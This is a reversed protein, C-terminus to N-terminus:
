GKIWEEIVTTLEAENPRTGVLSCIHSILTRGDLVEELGLRIRELWDQQRVTFPAAEVPTGGLLTSEVATELDDLGIGALASVKCVPVNLAFGLGEVAPHVGLDAKNLVLMSPHLALAHAAALEDEDPQRTGDLVTLVLDASSAAWRARRQGEAEIEAHSAAESAYAHRPEPSIRRLGASDCLVLALGRLVAPRELLDRTTGPEPSVLSAETRLLRNTLTSKGANVPGAIVVRHTRLLNLAAPTQALADQVAALLKPRWDDSRERCGLAVAHGLREWKEQFAEAGLLFGIQRATPNRALRLRAELAPLSVRAARHGRALLEFDRAMRFGAGLLVQRVVECAGLGGHCSLEVQPNGTESGEACLPAAVAEDALRGEADIVEGLVLQGDKEFSLPRKSRFVLPLVHRLDAGDLLFTAIAGEGSPTVLDFIPDRCPPPLFAHPVHLAPHPVCSM